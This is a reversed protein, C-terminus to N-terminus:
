LIQMLQGDRLSRREDGRPSRSRPCELSGEDVRACFRDGICNESAHLVLLVDSYADNLLIIKRKM